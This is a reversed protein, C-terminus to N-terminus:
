GAREVIERVRAAVEARTVRIYFPLNIIATAWVINAVTNGLAAVMAMAVVFLPFAMLVDVLRGIGRDLWGGRWGCLAGVATGALCSLAVASIAIALDLRTAVFPADEVRIVVKEHPTVLYYGDPDRRLITSFLRVLKQRSFRVGDQWWSGDKRIELGIDGCHEPNWLHVPPLSRPKELGAEAQLTSVFAMLADANGARSNSM